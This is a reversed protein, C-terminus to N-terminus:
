HHWMKILSQIALPILWGAVAPTILGALYSILGFRSLTKRIAPWSVPNTKLKGTEAARLIEYLADTKAKCSNLLKAVSAKNLDAGLEAEEKGHLLDPHTLGNRKILSYFHPHREYGAGYEQELYRNLNLEILDETHDTIKLQFSRRRILPWGFKDDTMSWHVWRVRPNNQMFQQFKALMETEWTDLEDRSLPSYEPVFSGKEGTGGFRVCISTIRVPHEDFSTTTCHFVHVNRNESDFFDLVNPSQPETKFM